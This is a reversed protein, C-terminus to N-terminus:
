AQPVEIHFAADKPKTFPDLLNSIRGNTNSPTGGVIQSDSALARHFLTQNTIAPVRKKVNLWPAIDVVQLKTFDALDGSHHSVNHWEKVPISALMEAIYDPPKANPDKKKAENYADRAAVWADIVTKAWPNNGYQQRAGAVGLQLMVRAQDQPTRYTSTVLGSKQGAYRLADKIIGITSDSLLPLANKGYELTTDQLAFVNNRPDADSLQNDPDVVLLIHTTDPPADRLRWGPINYTYSGMKRQSPIPNGVSIRSIADSWTRGSAWYLGVDLTPDAPLNARLIDYRLTLGGAKPNWRLSTAVIDAPKGRTFTFDGTTTGGYTDVITLTGAMRNTTELQGVLQFLMFNGQTKVNIVIEGTRNLSGIFDSSNGNGDQMTGSFVPTWMPNATIKLTMTYTTTGLPNTQTLPGHWWGSLDPLVAYNGNVAGVARGSPVIATTPAAIPAFVAAESQPLENAPAVDRVPFSLTNLSLLERNELLELQLGRFAPSKGGTRTERRSGRQRHSPRLFNWVSLMDPGKGSSFVDIRLLMISRGRDKREDYVAIRPAALM